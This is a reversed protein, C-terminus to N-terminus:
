IGEETKCALHVLGLEVIERVHEDAISYEVAQGLRKARVIKNDRLVRLQHSVGSQTGGCAETLHYVCAEGQMLALVIKLRTPDALMRFIACVTALDDEDLVREKALRVREEHEHEHLCENKKKTTKEM